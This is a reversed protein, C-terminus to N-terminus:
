DLLKTKIEQELALTIAKRVWTTYDNPHSHMLQEYTKQPLRVGLTKKALPEDGVIEFRGQADKPQGM